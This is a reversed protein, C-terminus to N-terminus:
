RGGREPFLNSGVRRKPGKNTGRENFRLFMLPDGKALRKNGSVKQARKYKRNKEKEFRSGSQLQKKLFYLFALEAEGMVNHFVEIGMYRLQNLSFDHIGGCIVKTVGNLYLKEIRQQITLGELSIKEQHVVKGNEERIIWLKPSLDFRPSVKNKFLAIAIKM